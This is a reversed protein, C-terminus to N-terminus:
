KQIKDNNEKQKKKFLKNINFVRIYSHYMKSVKRYVKDQLCSPTCVDLAQELTVNNNIIMYRMNLIASMHYRFQICKDLATILLDRNKFKTDM